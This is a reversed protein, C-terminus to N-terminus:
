YEIRFLTGHHLNKLVLAADESSLTVPDDPWIPILSASGTVPVPIRVEPIPIPDLDDRLTYEWTDTRNRVFGLTVTKGRLLYCYAEATSHDEPQFNEQDMAIGELLLSLPKLLHFLNKSDVYREDWHWIHGCAACGAFLAPYVTDVFIRGRHDAGYYRFPGCHCDDVAGTEALLIPVDARINRLIHYGDPGLECSKHCVDFKAGQDLYRHFQIFDFIEWCFSEYYNQQVNPCDLSGLSNTWLNKPALPRLSELMERNWDNV